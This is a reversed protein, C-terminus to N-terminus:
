GYHRWTEDRLDFRASLRGSRAVPELASRHLKAIPKMLINTKNRHLARHMQISM